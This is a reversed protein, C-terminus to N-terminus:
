LRDLPFQPALFALRVFLAALGAALREHDANQHEVEANKGHQFVIVEKGLGHTKDM